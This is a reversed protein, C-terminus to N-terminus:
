TATEVTWKKWTSWSNNYSRTSISSITFYWQIQMVGLDKQGFVLTYVTGSKTYANAWTSSSQLRYMGGTYLYNFDAQYTDNGNSPLKVFDFLNKAAAGETEITLDKGTNGATGSIAGTFKLTIQVSYWTREVFNVGDKFTYGAPPYVKVTHQGAKDTSADGVLTYKSIDGTWSCSLVNGTYLQYVSSEQIQPVETSYYVPKITWTREVYEQNYADIYHKGEPPYVKVTYTGPQTASTTGTVRLGEPLPSAWSVSIPTNSVQQDISRIEEVPSVLQPVDTTYYSRDITWSREVYEQTPADIFKRGEPPYIKVTYTGLGKATTTGTVRFDESIPSQWSIPQTVGRIEEVPSVLQPIDTTYYSHIIEWTRTVFPQDPTDYFVASEPPYVEVTYTGPTSAAVDGSLRFLDSIYDGEWRCDQTIGRLEEIPSVLQPIDSAYYASLIEWPFILPETTGDDWEEIAPTQLSVIIAYKNPDRFNCFNDITGNTYNITGYTVKLKPDCNKLLPIHTAANYYYSVPSILKPKQYITKKVPTRLYMNWDKHDESFDIHSPERILRTDINPITWLRNLNYKHQLSGDTFFLQGAKAKDENVYEVNDHWPLRKEYRGPVLAGKAHRRNEPLPLTASM